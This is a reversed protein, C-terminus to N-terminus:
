ICHRAESPGVDKNAVSGRGARRVGGFLVSENRHGQRPYIRQSDASVV